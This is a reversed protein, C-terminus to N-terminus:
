LSPAVDSTAIRLVPFQVGRAFEIMLNELRKCADTNGFLDDDLANRSLLPSTQVCCLADRGSEGSLSQRVFMPSVNLPQISGM